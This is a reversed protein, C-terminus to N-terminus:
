SEMRLYEREDACAACRLPKDTCAAGRRRVGWLLVTICAVLSALMLWGGPLVAALITSTTPASRPEVPMRTSLVAEIQAPLPELMAAGRAASPTLVIGSALVGRLSWTDGGNSGPHLDGEAKLSWFFWGLTDTFADLQADAWAQGGHHIGTALSWEGILVEHGRAQFQAIQARWERAQAVHEALSRRSANGYCDYLHLDLVVRPGVLQGTWWDGFGGPFDNKYLVNFVVLIDSNVARVLALARTYYDLLRGHNWEVAWAPENLLEIGLLADHQGYRGVLAGVAALSRRVSEEGGWGIGDGFEHGCGSHDAGNQSGPAGHLDLLVALGHASGWDLMQDLVAFSEVVDMPVYPIADGVSGLANWYGLPVRVANFGHAALWAFDDETVFTALHRRMRVAAETANAQVLKCLCLTGTGAYFSPLQWAEPIFTSGLNVGRILTM